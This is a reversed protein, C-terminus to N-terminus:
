RRKGSVGGDHNVRRLILPVVEIFNSIVNEPYTQPTLVLLM